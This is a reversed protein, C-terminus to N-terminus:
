EFSFSVKLHSKKGIKNWDPGYINEASEFFGLYIVNQYYSKFINLFIIKPIM